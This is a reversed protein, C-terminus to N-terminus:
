KEDVNNWKLQQENENDNGEYWRHEKEDVNLKM